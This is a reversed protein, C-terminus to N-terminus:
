GRMTKNVSAARTSVEVAILERLYQLASIRRGTGAGVESQEALLELERRTKQGLVSSVPDSYCRVGCRWLSIFQLQLPSAKIRTISERM